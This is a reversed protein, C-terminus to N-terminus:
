NRPPFLGQVAICYNVALQPPLNTMPQSGGTNGVVITGPNETVTVGGLNVTSGATGPAVYINASAPGAGGAGLMYDADPTNVGAVQKASLTVAVSGGSSTAAHTHIPMQLLTQTVTEVGRQQGQLVPTLGPGTGLGIASRGRLDPLGFTSTGNGGYNTGLLSFLAPNSSVAIIAGNAPAYGQPCFTAATACITGLYVSDAPGCAQAPASAILTGVMLSAATKFAFPIGLGSDRSSRKM